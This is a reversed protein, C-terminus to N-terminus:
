KIPNCHSEVVVDDITKGLSLSGSKVADLDFNKGQTQTPIPAESKYPTTWGDTISSWPLRRGTGCRTFDFASPPTLRTVTFVRAHAAKAAAVTEAVTHMAPYNGERPYDTKNELGDGDRDGYNDPKELFTDDTVLVVVRTANARWPFESVAAYLADLANEECIPNQLTPGSPGDGPNRNPTTYTQKFASFASQLTSAATHVKGGSLPGTADFAWNDVFAVLGFHADPSLGNAATVVGGIDSGLKDLVFDMSSSVDLVLVVDISENCTGPSTDLPADAFAGGGADRDSGPGGGGGGDADAGLDARGSGGCAGAVLAGAAVLGVAAWANAGRTM